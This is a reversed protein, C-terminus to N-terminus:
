GLFRSIRERLAPLVDREFWDNRKLWINNRPSPHPLPFHRPQYDQWHMVRQTLSRKDNLYYSQAYQGVLLIMPSQIHATIKSHWTTACVAPPPLDGTKGRGLYCFAMPLLAIYQSNYFTEDDIGMWARLREGSPDNWPTHTAHAKAGPAQGVIMLRASASVQLVPRPHYPLSAKCLTCQNVQTLLSSLM